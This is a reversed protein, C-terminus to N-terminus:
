NAGGGGGPYRRGRGASDRGKCVVGGAGAQSRDGAAEIIRLRNIVYAMVDGIDPPICGTVREEHKRLPISGTRFVRTVALVLQLKFSSVSQLVHLRGMERATFAFFAPPNAPRLVTPAAEPRKGATLAIAPRNQRTRSRKAKANCRKRDIRRQDATWRGVM